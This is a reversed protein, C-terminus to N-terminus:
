YILQKQCLLLEYVKLINQIVIREINNKRRYVVEKSDQYYQELLSQLWNLIEMQGEIDSLAKRFITM